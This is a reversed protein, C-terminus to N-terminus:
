KVLGGALAGALMGYAPPVKRLILVIAVVLATLAGLTSVTTM